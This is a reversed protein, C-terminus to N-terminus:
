GGAPTLELPAARRFVISPGLADRAAPAEEIRRVEVVGLGRLLAASAPNDTVVSAEIASPAFAADLAPLFAEVAERMLGRGWLAPDLFCAITPGGDEPM